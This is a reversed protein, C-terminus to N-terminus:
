SRIAHVILYVVWISIYLSFLTLFLYGIGMVLVYTGVALGKLAEKVYYMLTGKKNITRISLISSDETVQCAVM